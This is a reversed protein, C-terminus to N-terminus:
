PANVTTTVPSQGEQNAKIEVKGDNLIVVQLTINSKNVIPVELSSIKSQRTVIPIREPEDDEDDEDEEDDETKERPPPQVVKIEHKGEYLEIFAKSSDTAPISVLRRAPLPTNQAVVIYNEEESEGAIVIPASTVNVDLETTASPLDPLNPNSLLKAQIAAGKAIAQDPDVSSLIESNVFIGSLVNTLSPLGSSAGVLVIKDINEIELGAEKVTEKTLEGVGNFIKSALLGFRLRNVQSNFDLGDKLSEVACGASNSASLSRKTQECALLLKVYARRDSEQLNESYTQPIDVKTQKTFEKAFHQVLVQDLQQGGIKDDTKNALPTFLGQRAAVATISTSYEGMDVVVVNPDENGIIDNYSSM